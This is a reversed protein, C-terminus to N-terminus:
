ADDAILQTTDDIYRASTEPRKRGHYVHARIRRDLTDGDERLDDTLARLFEDKGIRDWRVYTRVRRLMATHFTLITRGNMDLFPHAYALRAFVVGPKAAPDADSVAAAYDFARGIEHPRAFLDKYSGKGISLSPATVTRDEGAWPYLFGFLMRHTQRLHEYTLQPQKGLFSLVDVVRGSFGIHELRRLRSIDREALRNRLYGRQEYDGYPDFPM